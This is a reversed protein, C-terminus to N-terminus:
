NRENGFPNRMAFVIAEYDKRDPTLVVSVVRAQSEDFALSEGLRPLVEVNLIKCDETQTGGRFQLKIKM